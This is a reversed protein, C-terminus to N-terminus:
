SVVLILGTAANVNRKRIRDREGTEKGTTKSSSSRLSDSCCTYPATLAELGCLLDELRKASLRNTEM